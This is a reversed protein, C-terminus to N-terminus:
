TVLTTYAVFGSGYIDTVAPKPFNLEVLRGFPQVSDEFYPFELPLCRETDSPDDVGSSWELYWIVFILSLVLLIYGIRSIKPVIADNTASKAHPINFWPARRPM